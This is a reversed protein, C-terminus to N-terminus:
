NDTRVFQGTPITREQTEMVRSQDLPLERKTARVKSGETGSAILGSDVTLVNWDLQEYAARRSQTDRTATEDAADNFDVLFVTDDQHEARRPFGGTLPWGSGGDARLLIDTGIGWREAYAFTAIQQHDVLPICSIETNLTLLEWRPLQKLLEKGHESSEVLISVTQQRPQGRSDQTQTVGAKQLARSSIGNRALAKATKTIIKNRSESHWFLARKRTLGKDPATTPENRNIDLFVVNVKVPPNSETPAFIVPGCVEELRFHQYDTLQAGVELFAYWTGDQWVEPLNATRTALISEVDTFIVIHFGDSMSHHFLQMTGVFMRPNHSWTTRSDRTVPRDAHQSIGQVLQQVRNKNRAVIYLNFDSFLRAFLAIHRGIDSFRRALIQGRPEKALATLLRVDDSTLDPEHLFQHDANHLHGWITRNDVKVTYGHHELHQHIRPVLGASFILRGDDNVDYHRVVDLKHQVGLPGGPIFRHATHELLPAILDRITGEAFATPGHLTITTEQKGNKPSTQTKM